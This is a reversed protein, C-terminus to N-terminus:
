SVDCANQEKDRHLTPTPTAGGEGAHNAPTDSDVSGVRKKGLYMGAGRKEIESFPLVPVTLRDRATPDLFYIYRLQFGPLQEAGVRKFFQRPTENFRKGNRRQIAMGGNIGSTMTATHVREGSPLLWIQTNKKIQTLVFGSARYITGDGCQTADAFSLVWKLHPYRKRLFRMVWGIARSEGNRPLWGAFAMRNLEIFENWGTEKVLSLMLRPSMSPGM